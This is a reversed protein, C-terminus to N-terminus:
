EKIGMAKKFGCKFGRFCCVMLLDIVLIQFPKEIIVNEVNVRV